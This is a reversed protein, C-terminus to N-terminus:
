KTTAAAKKRPKLNKQDLLSLSDAANFPYLRVSQESKEGANSLTVDVRRNQAWVIIGLEHLVKERATADLEPNREIMERVQEATLNQEKGLDLTEIKAEPVGQQVLYLKTRSVRREGLAKNYDISGRVDAHGTLTLRADPKFQLYSKFDTALTALTAEQSRLLGGEPRGVRPQDTQFFVSHLALRTELRVQEPPLPAATAVVIAPAAITISTGATATQNKDDTVNCTVGVVGPAADASSYAATPGSGSITGATAAYSFTLPRNQPSVGNATVTSGEGTKIASPNTSCSITPPEFAKVTFSATATASEWPRLGERGARGEKVSCNVTYAGPALTATSVTATAETATLGPGTIGYIVNLRSDLNGASATVTVADGPFIATPSATCALNVPAPPANSGGFRFVIGSSLRMDNQTGSQGTARNEFSTMLYEAQVLRLALHHSMRLDLGGGATMAFSSEAPLPTCGTGTCSADLTVPSAHIEGFLAQAFPTIRGQNRFSLRPGALYTFANGSSNIADSPNGAGIAQFQSDDFGGFDGVVGLYRNFNYAISTSGGNLWVLRNGDALTPVARLYSYGVFLEVKPTSNSQGSSDRSAVPTSQAGLHLAPILCVAFAATAIKRASLKM